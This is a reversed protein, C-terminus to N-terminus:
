THLGGDVVFTQGTIYTGGPGALFRVIPAVEGPQGLRKMPIQSLAYDMASEPLGATMDTEIFGPAIANIRINRRAMEKAMTRTMAIVAGKSASYNAQGINGRLATVSAINIIVGDRRRSLIPLVARSMRFAGGANVAMVDDWAEDRLRMALGDSTIGANNVLIAVDGHEQATAIVRACDESSSVDGQVAAGDIEAAVTEASAADSRYTIVVKAGATALERAIAAGIGRSGGTVIAVCGELEV